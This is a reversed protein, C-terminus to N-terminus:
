GTRELFANPAQRGFRPLQRGERMALVLGVLLATHFLVAAVLIFALHWILLTSAFIVSACGIYTGAVRMAVPQGLRWWVLGTASLALMGKIAAMGRLLVGLEPGAAQAVGSAALWALIAAAVSGVVLAMRLVTAKSENQNAGAHRAAQPARKGVPARELVATEASRYEAPAVLEAVQARRPANLHRLVATNLPYGLSNGAHRVLCPFRRGTGWSENQSSAM